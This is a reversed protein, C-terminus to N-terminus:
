SRSPPDFVPTLVPEGSFFRRLNERLLEAMNIFGTTAHGAIHPTLTLNPVNAWREPPTPEEWQVDLAAAGLSGAKLAEILADEDVLRGRAVNILLGKPGLAEIINRDILCSTEDNLGAAVILVDSSAALEALSAARPWRADPKPRPGHWGIPCGFPELREAIARGIFGLGLIGVRREKLSWRLQGPPGKQWRGERLTAESERIPCVSQLLLAIALEAVDSANIGAGNAVEVGRTRAHTIDIGDYGAGVSIILGLRPLAEVLATDLVLGGHTAVVRIDPGRAAALEAPGSYTWYDITEYEPEVMPKIAAMPKDILLIPERAQKM